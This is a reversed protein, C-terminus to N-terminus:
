PNLAALNGCKLNAPVSELIKKPYPLNLGNMLEIFDQRSKGALRPNCRKEEDISSVTLGAYNHGPYVLTQDPLGFLKQTISDYLKGPDGQQFDTRGCG